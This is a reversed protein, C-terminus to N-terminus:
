FLTNSIDYLEAHTKDFMGSLLAELKWITFLESGFCFQLSQRVQFCRSDDVFSEHIKLLFGIVRVSSRSGDETSAWKMATLATSIDTMRIPSGLSKRSAVFRALQSAQRLADSKLVTAIMAVDGDAQLDSLSAVACDSVMHLDVITTLAMEKWEPLDADSAGVVALIWAWIIEHGGLLDLSYAPLM